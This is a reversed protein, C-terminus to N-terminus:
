RKNKLTMLGGDKLFERLMWVKGTFKFIIINKKESM